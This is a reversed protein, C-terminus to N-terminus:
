ANKFIKLEEEAQRKASEPAGTMRDPHLIWIKDSHAKRIGEDDASPDVGLIQYYDEWNHLWPQNSM